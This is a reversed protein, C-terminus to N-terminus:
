VEQLIPKTTITQKGELFAINEILKRMKEIVSSEGNIKTVGETNIPFSLPHTHGSICIAIAILYDKVDMESLNKDVIHIDGNEDFRIGRFFAMLDDIVQDMAGIRINM